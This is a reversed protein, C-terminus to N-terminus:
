PPAGVWCWWWRQRVLRRETIMAGIIVTCTLVPWLVTAAVVTVAGLLKVWVTPAIGSRVPVADVKPKPM